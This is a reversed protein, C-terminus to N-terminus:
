KRAMMNRREREMNTLRRMKIRMLSIIGDRLDVLLRLLDCVSKTSRLLNENQTQLSGTSSTLHPSNLTSSLNNSWIRTATTTTQTVNYPVTAATNKLM